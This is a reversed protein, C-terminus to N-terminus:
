FFSLQGDLIKVKSKKVKNQGSTRGDSEQQSYANNHTIVLLEKSKSDPEATISTRYFNLGKHLNRHYFCDESLQKLQLNSSSEYICDNKESCKKFQSCCGMM